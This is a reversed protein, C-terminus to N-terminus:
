ANRVPIHPVTVKVSPTCKQGALNVYGVGKVFVINSSCTVCRNSLM